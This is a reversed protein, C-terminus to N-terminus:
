NIYTMVKLSRQSALDFKSFYSQMLIVDKPTFQHGNEFLRLAYDSMIEYMSEDASQTSKVFYLFRAYLDRSLQSNSDGLSESVIKEIKIKLRNYTERDTRNYGLNIMLERIASLHM